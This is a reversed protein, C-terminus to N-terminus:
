PSGTAQADEAGGSAGEHPDLLGRIGRAVGEVEQRVQGRDAAHLLAKIEEIGSELKELREGVSAEQRAQRVKHRAQRLTDAIRSKLAEALELRDTSGSLAAELEHPGVGVRHAEAYLDGLDMHSFEMKEITDALVESNETTADPGANRRLLSVFKPVSLIKDIIAKVPFPDTLCKKLQDPELGANDAWRILQGLNLKKMDARFSEQEKANFSRFWADFEYEDIISDAAHDIKVAAIDEETFFLKDALMKHLETISLTDDGRAADSFLRRQRENKERIHLVDQISYQVEPFAERVKVLSDKTLYLLQTDEMATINTQYRVVKASDLFTQEGTYSGENLYGLVNGRRVEIVNLSSGIKVTQGVRFTKEGEMPDFNKWYRKRPALAGPYPNSAHRATGRIHTNKRDLSRHQLVKNAEQGGTDVTGGSAVRIIAQIPDSHSDMCKDIVSQEVGDSKGQEILAKMTLRGLELKMHSREIFDTELEADYTVADYVTCWFQPANTDKSQLTCRAMMPVSNSNEWTQLRGKRVIYMNEAICGQICVPAGKLAPLPRLNLCLKSVVEDKLSAFIPVQKIFDTYLITVLEEVLPAPQFENLISVEDILKNSGNGGSLKAAYFEEVQNQSQTDFHQNRM